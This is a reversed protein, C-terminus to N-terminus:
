HWIDNTVSSSPMILGVTAAWFLMLQWVPLHRLFYTFDATYLTLLRTFSRSMPLKLLECSRVSPSDTFYSYLAARSAALRSHCHPRLGYTILLCAMGVGGTLTCPTTPTKALYPLGSVSATYLRRPPQQSVTFVRHVVGDFGLQGVEALMQFRHDVAVILAIVRVSDRSQVTM